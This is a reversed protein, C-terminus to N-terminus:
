SDFETDFLGLSSSSIQYGDTWTGQFPILYQLEINM